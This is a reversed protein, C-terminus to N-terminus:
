EAYKIATDFVERLWPDNKDVEYYQIDEGDVKISLTYGYMNNYTVAKETDVYMITWKFDGEEVPYMRKSEDYILSSITKKYERDKLLNIIESFGDDKSSLEVKVEELRGYKNFEGADYKGIFVLSAVTSDLEIEVPQKHIFAAIVLALLVIILFTLKPHKKM